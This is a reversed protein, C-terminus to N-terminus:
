LVYLNALMQMLDYIFVVTGRFGVSHIIFAIYAKLARLSIILGWM